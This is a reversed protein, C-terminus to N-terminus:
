AKPFYPCSKGICDKNKRYQKCKYETAETSKFYETVRMFTEISTIVERKCCRPGGHKGIELLANGTAINAKGREVSSMPTASEIISVAIGAGVGAGCNGYFGCNGGKVEKGRKIAENVKSDDIKGSNNQHTKVLIAPVISHYEPGNMNLGPLEFVKEALKIPNKEKSGLILIQVKELIGKSHCSDCIYHGNKCTVYTKFEKNCVNCSANSPNENQYVLDEGCFVCGETKKPEYSVSNANKPKTSLVIKLKKDSEDSETMAKIEDIYHNIGIEFIEQIPRCDPLHVNGDNKNAAVVGCGGGCVVDYKCDQCKTISKVDRSKWANISDTNIKVEPWFSGLKYESRGCSATCGYVDGHLDFVWETKCAPCTDFSAMYMEGTDVLHRIGKFDPRHFKTLIPHDKSLKAYEAWLEVQSM